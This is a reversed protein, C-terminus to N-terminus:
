SKGCRLIVAKMTPQDTDHLEWTFVCGENEWTFTLPEIFPHIQYPVTLKTSFAGEKIDNMLVRLKGQVGDPLGEYDLWFGSYLVLKTPKQGESLIAKISPVRKWM